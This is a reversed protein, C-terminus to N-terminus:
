KDLEKMLGPLDSFRELEPVPQDITGFGYAAHIFDIGAEMTSDYDGQIDGVYWARDLGNRSVILAINSGKGKLNNGYCEIDDFYEGFGYHELFTEIYGSQCNSVIYLHYKKKLRILTKELDPYLVGGHRLLYQQENDCCRDLLERREELPLSGFLIDAIRDMTLGMVGMVDQQTIDPFDYGLERVKETWSIAVNESSDWLTGDMDFIIGKKM